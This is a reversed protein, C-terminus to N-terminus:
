AMTSNQQHKWSRSEPILGISNEQVRAWVLGRMLTAPINNPDCNLQPPHHKATRKTQRYTQLCKKFRSESFAVIGRFVHINYLCYNVAMCKKEVVVDSIKIQIAKWSMEGDDFLLSFKSIMKISM